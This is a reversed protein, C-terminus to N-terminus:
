SDNKIKFENLKESFYQFGEALRTSNRYPLRLDRYCVSKLIDANPTNSKELNQYMHKGYEIAKDFDTNTRNLNYFIFIQITYSLDEDTDKNLKKAASEIQNIAADTLKVSGIFGL